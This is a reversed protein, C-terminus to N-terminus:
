RAGRGSLVVTPTRLLIKLDLSFAWHDVYFVDLRSAEHFPLRFRGSVQWLGTMGPPVDFRHSFWDPCSQIETPLCPRPGVLSMDGRIVNLLQPLEDVSWRRLVRGIRTIRPDSSVKFFPGDCENLHLIESVRSEADAAMTRLKIMRFTRGGRGTREQRFLVPGPSDLKILLAAVAMVPATLVLALAAGVVDLVRKAAWNLGGLRSPRYSLITLGAVEEVTVATSIHSALAPLVTVEAGCAAAHNLVPRLEAEACSAGDVVVRDVAFERTLHPLLDYHGLLPVGLEPDLPSPDDSVFGVPRMGYAPHRLLREAFEQAAPGTGVILVPSPARAARRREAAYALGRAGVLLPTALGAYLLARTASQHGVGAAALAATATGFGIRTVQDLARTSASPAWYLATARFAALVLAAAVMAAPVPWGVLVALGSVAALASVDATLLRFRYSRDVRPARGGPRVDLTPSDLEQSHPAAAHSHGASAASRVPSPRRRAVLTPAVSELEVGGDLM